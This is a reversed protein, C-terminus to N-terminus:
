GAAGALSWDTDMADYSGYAADREDYSPYSVDLDDYSLPSVQLGPAPRSVEVLTSSFESWWEDGTYGGDTQTLTKVHGYFRRPLIGQHTRILWVPLQPDAQTGLTSWLRDFMERGTVAFQVAVDQAAQRPGAGVLTPFMAGQVRVLDGPAERTLSPWSGSMNTVTANLYPNLPQQVRCADEDGVWPLVTSGIGVRGLSQGGAFCEAEYATPVDFGAEVDLHGFSTTLPRRVAGPVVDTRGESVWWLTITDTGDPFTVSLSSPSGADFGAGGTSPSGGDFSDPGSTFPDGGDWSDADVISIRIHEVPTGTPEPTLTAIMGVEKRGVM